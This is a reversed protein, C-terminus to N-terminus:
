RFGRQYALSPHLRRGLRRSELVGFVPKDPRYLKGGDTWAYDAPSRARALRPRLARGAVRQGEFPFGPVWRAADRFPDIVPHGLYSSFCTLCHGDVQSCFGPCCGFRLKICLDEHAYLEQLLTDIPRSRYAARPLSPAKDAEAFACAPHLGRGLRFARQGM